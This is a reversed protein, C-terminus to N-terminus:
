RQPKKGRNRKTPTGGLFCEELAILLVYAVELETERVTHKTVLSYAVEVAEGFILEVRGTEHEVVGSIAPCAKVITLVVKGPFLGFGVVDTDVSCEELISELEREVGEVLTGGVDKLSGLVGTDVTSGYGAVVDAFHAVATPFKRDLVIEACAVEVVAEIEVETICLIFKEFKGTVFYNTTHVACPADVAFTQRQRAVIAVLNFTDEM